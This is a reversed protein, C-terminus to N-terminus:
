SKTRIPGVVLFKSKEYWIFEKINQENVSQLIILILTQM